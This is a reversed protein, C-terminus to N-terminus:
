FGPVVKPHSPRKQNQLLSCFQSRFVFMLASLALVYLFSLMPVLEGACLGDLIRKLLIESKHGFLKPPQMVDDSVLAVVHFPPSEPAISVGESAPM